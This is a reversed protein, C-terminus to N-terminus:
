HIFWCKGSIKNLIFHVHHQVINGHQIHCMRCHFNTDWAAILIRIMCLILKLSLSLTSNRYIIGIYGTYGGRDVTKVCLHKRPHFYGESCKEVSVTRNRYCRIFSDTWLKGPFYNVGDPLGVCSPLRSSCPICKTDGPKCLNQEYEGVPMFIFM